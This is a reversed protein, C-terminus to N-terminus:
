QGSTAPEQLHALLLQAAPHLQDEARVCLWLQRQAWADQLPIAVLGSSETWPTTAGRPIVGIGLGAAVMACVADFSTVQIRLNLACDADAAARVLLHQLASDAHLSVLPHTLVDRFAIRERDTPLTGRRAVVVLEDKRFPLSTIGEIAPAESVIGIDAVNEAVARAIFSSVHEELHIHIDPHQQMFSALAPPLFQVIASINAFVRVQGRLGSAYQRLEVDLQTAQHLLRRATNLLAHGAPTLEVGRAGRTLLAAGFNQELDSLRKSVASAVTHSREAARAISGAEAVAVFLELDRLDFHLAM